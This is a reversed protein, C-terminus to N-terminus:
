QIEDEDEEEKERRKALVFFFTGSTAAVAAAVALGAAVPSGNKINTETDNRYIEGLPSTTTNNGDSVQTTTTTVGGSTSTTTYVTRDSAQDYTGGAISPDDDTPLAPDSPVGPATSNGDNVEGTVVNIIVTGTYTGSAKAISTKAGLYLDVSGSGSGTVTMISAPTSESPLPHYNSSNNGENTENYTKSNLTTTASLSYGWYNAPFSTKVYTQTLSPLTISTDVANSLSTRNTSDNPNYAYMSATLGTANNSSATIAIKNRLFENINGTAAASPTISVTLSEKVNVQFTTNCPSTTCETASSNPLFFTLMFASTALFMGALSIGVKTKTKLM